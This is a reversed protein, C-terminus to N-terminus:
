DRSAVRFVSEASKSVLDPQWDGVSGELVGVQKGPSHMWVWWGPEEEERGCLVSISALLRFYPTSEVNIDSVDM